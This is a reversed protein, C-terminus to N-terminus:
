RRNEKGYTTVILEAVQSLLGVKRQLLSCFEYNPSPRERTKVLARPNVPRATLSVDTLEAKLVEAYFNANSENVIRFERVTAGVSFANCRRAAPLTATCKILLNGSADYGLDDVTGAVKAADHEHLLPFTYTTKPYQTIAPCLSLIRAHPAAQGAQGASPAPAHPSPTGRGPGHSSENSISHSFRKLSNPSRGAIPFGIPPCVVHRSWAGTAWEAVHPGDRHSRAVSYALAGVLM